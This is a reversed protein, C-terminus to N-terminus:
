LIVVPMRNKRNHKSCPHTNAFNRSQPPTVNVKLFPDNIYVMRQDIIVMRCVAAIKIDVRGLCPGPFPLNGHQLLYFFCKNFFFMILLFVANVTGAYNVSIRIEDKDVPKSTYLMLPRQIFCDSPNDTVTVIFKQIFIWICLYKQGAKAAM